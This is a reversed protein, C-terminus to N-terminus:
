NNKKNNGLIISKTTIISDITYLKQYLKCVKQAIIDILSNQRYLEEIKSKLKNIYDINFDILNLIKYKGIFPKEDHSTILYKIDVKEVIKKVKNLSEIYNNYDEIYILTKRSHKFLLESLILLKDKKNIIGIDGMTHGPLNIIKLHTDGLNLYLEKNFTIDIEVERDLLEFYFNKFDQSVCYYDSAKKTILNFQRTYDVLLDKSRENSF